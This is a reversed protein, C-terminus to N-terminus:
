KLLTFLLLVAFLVIGGILGAKKMKAISAELEAVMKAGEEDIREDERRILESVDDSSSLESLFRALEEDFSKLENELEAPNKAVGSKIDALLSLIYSPDEDTECDKVYVTATAVISTNDRGNYTQKETLKDDVYTVTALITLKDGNKANKISELAYSIKKEFIARIESHNM